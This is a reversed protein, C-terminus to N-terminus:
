AAHMEQVVRELSRGLHELEVELAAVGQPAGALTGSKGLLELNLTLELALRTGLYSLAGKLTHCASTLKRPDGAAVADRIDALRKPCDALFIGVVQRFLNLDGDMRALAKQHDFAGAEAQEGEGQCDGGPGGEKKEAGNHGDGNQTDGIHEEGFEGPVFSRLAAIMDTSSLPKSLYGDMGARLCRERDGDMAHATLAIIPVHRAGGKESERIAGTAAFGDMEPMQVDMFVLDFPSKGAGALAALAEKGNGAVSVRHGRKELMRVVVRQNVPNDEVLLVRLQRGLDLASPVTVPEAQAGAPDTSGLVALVAELLASQGVPKNLCASVGLERCREADGRQRDSSLMMIAAGSDERAAKVRAILEFGDMGPMVADILLLSFPEGAEGAAALLELAQAGGGASSPRMGWQKLMEEQIRRNTANDDVVLVSLGRLFELTRPVRRVPPGQRLGFRATFHFASGRGLVSEVWIEGGMMEVLGACISLGLGTGGFNRTTSADAQSFPDFIKKRKEASIGIGTDTLTFHLCTAFAGEREATVSLVVEGKATFKVANSVLNVIVQRLRGSDGVLDDPVEGPVWFALELGKEAARLALPHLISDLSERLEFDLHELYLKQAGIKSFDLIDNIVRMLSGASSSVAQVYEAQERDLETDMLLETMGIVGNMPTRIEHSMNALFQSKLRSAEEAMEKARQLEAETQKRATVDEKVGLYHTIEGAPNKIPSITAAEWYCSGDKKRNLMDGRWEGGARISDWLGQYLEVPTSGSQLFRPNRGLAEQFSYGTAQSFRPNVYEINGACDTIMISIPSQEVAQQMKRIQEEVLKQETVDGALGVYRYVEGGPLCVPYTRAHIWRVSEDPRVIRYIQDLREGQALRGLAQLMGPRDEPHIINTFSLPFDYLSQCSAQWLTQYAPSVYITQGLDSSVLFFVENCHEAIQRLREESEKLAQEVVLHEAEARKRQTIDQVTGFVRVARGESDRSVEALAQVTRQTGDPRVFRHQLSFPAAGRLADQAARELDAVEEPHVLAIFAGVTGAFAGQALGTIRYMQESWVVRGSAIDLEWNGVQAVRQAEALLWESHLLAEREQDLKSVMENFVGALIGIEDRSVCPFFREAGGKEALDRCHGTFRLLPATLQRIFLLVVGVFFGIGALLTVAMRRKAGEIAAYAESQPYNAALIWNTSKLRKFTVLVPLARSNVGELTGEFGDIAADFGKNRGPAVDKVLIRAHDPHMIMTRDTSFLYLYGKKGVPTHAIKGLFNHVTLDISGALVGALEGREDLIPAAMAIVPHRPERSSFFPESISPKRSPATKKFYDRYSYNNGRRGAVFPNEAVLTGAPSLLVLSGDFTKKHDIERDLFRQARGADRLADRPVQQAMEVLEKQAAALEDDLHGAMTSILVFQQAALTERLQQQFFSLFFLALASTGAAVVLCIGLTIKTKLSM